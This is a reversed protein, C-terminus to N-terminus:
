SRWLLKKGETESQVNIDIKKDVEHTTCARGLQDESKFAMSINQLSYSNHLM